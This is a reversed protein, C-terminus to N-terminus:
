ETLEFEEDSSSQSDVLPRSGPMEKNYHDHLVMCSSVIDNKLKNRRVTITDGAQSFACESAVSSPQICHYKLALRSLNPFRDRHRSWWAIVDILEGEAVESPNVLGLYRTVEDSEQRQALDQTGLALQVISRRSYSCSTSSVSRAEQTAEPTGTLQRLKEEKATRESDLYKFRWNPDLVTALKAEEIFVDNKFHRLRNVILRAFENDGFTELSDIAASYYLIVNSYNAKRSSALIVAAEYIPHLMELTDKIQQWEDEELKLSEPIQGTGSLEVIAPKLILLRELSTFLTNWRTRVELKVKLPRISLEECQRKLLNCLEISRKILKCLEQTKEILAKYTGTIRERAYKICNHFIHCICSVRVIPNQARNMNILTMAAQNNSAGDSTIAVCKDNLEFRDLVREIAIRVNHGSHPPEIVEFAILACHMEHRSFYHATVCSYARGLHFWIDTTLSVYASQGLISKMEASVTTARDIIQKRIGNHGIIVGTLSQFDRDKVITLPLSCRTIMRIVRKLKSEASSFEPPLEDNKEHAEAHSNRYRTGTDFRYKQGCGPIRCVEYFKGDDGKQQEFFLDRSVQGVKPTRSRSRSRARQASGADDTSTSSETEVQMQIDRAPTSVRRSYTQRPPSM